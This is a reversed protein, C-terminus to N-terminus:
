EKIVKSEWRTGHQDTYKVLYLGAPQESIDLDIEVSSGGPQFRRVAQGSANYLTFAGTPPAASRFSLFLQGRTPNPYALINLVLGQEAIHDFQQCGPVLCGFSDVKIVWSDQGNSLVYGCAAFGGDATPIVDVLDNWDSWTTDTSPHTYSRMWLSDSGGDFRLLVGHPYADARVNGCAIFDDNGVRKVSKLEQALLTPGYKREWALTGDPEYRRAYLRTYSSSGVEYDIYAGAYVVGNDSTACVRASADDYSTGPSAHWLYNGQADTKLLYDDMDPGPYSRTDGGIYMSGDSAIDISRGYDDNVGGHFRTWLVQGSTDLLTLFVQANNGPVVAMGVAAIATDGIWHAAYGISEYGEADFLRLSWISDGDSSLRWVVARDTDSSDISGCAVIGLDEHADTANSWGAFYSISDCGYSRELVVVGDSTFNSVGIRWGTNLTDLAGAYIVFQGNVEELAWSLEPLSYNRFDRRTNFAQGISVKCCAVYIVILAFIRM